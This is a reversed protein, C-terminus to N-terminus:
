NIPEFNEKLSRETIEIWGFGNAGEICDLHVEGGILSGANDKQWISGVPLINCEETQECNEDYEMLKMSKICRYKM